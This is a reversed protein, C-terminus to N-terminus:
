YGMYIYIYFDKFLVSALQIWYCIFLIICWSCPIDDCFLLTTVVYSFLDVCVNVISLFWIIVKTSACFTM